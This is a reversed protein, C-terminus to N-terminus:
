QALYLRIRQSARLRFRLYYNPSGMLHPNSTYKATAQNLDEPLTLTVRLSSLIPLLLLSCGTIGGTLVALIYALIRALKLGIYRQHLGVFKAFVSQFM